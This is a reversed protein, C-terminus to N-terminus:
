APGGGRRHAPTPVGWGPRTFRVPAFRRLLAVTEAMDAELAVEGLRATMEDRGMHSGIEHGRAVIERALGPAARVREGLLMFTARIGAADLADLVAPSTGPDPGDDITLALAPVDAPGAFVVGPFLAAGLAVVPGAAARAAVGRLRARM